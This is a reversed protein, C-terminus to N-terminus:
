RGGETATVESNLDHGCKACWRLVGYGHCETCVSYMEGPSYNIPDDDYEDRYGDECGISDCFRTRVDYEGCKPCEEDTIEYDLEHM